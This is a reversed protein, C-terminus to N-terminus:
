AREREMEERQGRRKTKFAAGLRIGVAALRWSRARTPRLGPTLVSGLVRPLERVRWSWPRPARVVATGWSEPSPM